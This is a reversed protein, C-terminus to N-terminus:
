ETREWREKRRDGIVRVIQDALHIFGTLDIKIVTGEAHTLGETVLRDGKARRIRIANEIDEEGFVLNGLDAKAVIITLSDM